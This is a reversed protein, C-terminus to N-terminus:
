NILSFNEFPLLSRELMRMRAQVSLSGPYRVHHGIEHALLAEMSGILNKEQIIPFSLSVQRSILHIQAISDQEDSATPEALLLFRSWHACAAPWLRHMERQLDERSIPTNDSSSTMTIWGLAFLKRLKRDLAKP